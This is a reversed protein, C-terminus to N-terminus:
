PPDTCAFASADDTSGTGKWRAVQPYPCLPRTRLIGSQRDGDIRYRAAIIRAPPTGQEVWREIALSVDHDADFAAASRGMLGGPGAGGDCHLMGPAMFLRVFSRAARDGLKARVSEHYDITNLASIPPDAWGHFLILKGGRAAFRRLDPDTANLVRALKRDAARSDRELDFSAPDWAAQEFVMHRFFNSSFAVQQSQGPAPGTIWRSWGEPGTVGGPPHGPHLQQGARTRPGAYLKQLTAVQPATLCQPGDAGPCLLTAPDFACRRPDDIVDDRLGDLTDCAALTAAEIAPLKSAPLYGADLIQRDWAGQAMLRTMANAPAGAVIGDYDAPYRQAEMLAQRGGNSCASFYSRAPPKGYFARVIAKARDTMLHIARHGFDVVKEPHGVAWAADSQVDTHHGTDTSAAAYDRQVAAELGRYGISGALGGNGIGRFKGNWGTAPLWVEFRIDSDPTPAISGVVRCFTPLEPRPRGAPPTYDGPPVTRASTITTHRLKLAKLAECTGPTAPPSSLAVALSLFAAPM